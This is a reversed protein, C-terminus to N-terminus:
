RADQYSTGTDTDQMKIGTDADQLSSEIGVNELMILRLKVSGGNFMKEKTIGEIICEVYQNNTQHPLSIQIHKSAFFDKGVSYPVTIEVRRRAQSELWRYLYWLADEYRYFWKKDTLDSPPKEIQRYRQQLARAMGWIIKGDPVGASINGIGYIGPTRDATWGTGGPDNSDLVRMMGDFKESGYNWNYNVVPECYIDQLNPEIISGVNGIIKTLDISAYPGVNGLYGICEYGSKDTYTTCFTDALLSRKIEDSWGEAEDFIQRSIKLDKPAWKSVDTGGIPGLSYYDFSGDDGDTKIKASPSYTKGISVSDGSESWNELRTIHEVVDVPNEIMDTETKRFGWRDGYVRGAHPSFVADKISTSKRFMIGLSVYRATLKVTENNTYMINSTNVMLEYIAKYDDVSSVTPLKFLTKGYVFSGENATESYDLTEPVYFNKNKSDITDNYYFDPANRVVMFSDLNLPVLETFAEFNVSTKPGIFKRYSINTRRQYPSFTTYDGSVLDLALSHDILLYAEDFEFGDPPAPLRMKIAQGLYWKYGFSVGTYGLTWELRTNTLFTKDCAESFDLPSSHNTTVTAPTGFGVGIDHGVFLGPSVMACPDGYADNFRDFANFEAVSGVLSIDTNNMPVYKFADVNDMNAAFQKADVDVSNNDADDSRDYIYEPLQYFQEPQQNVPIITGEDAAQTVTKNDDWSYLEVANDIENGASDLFSRCPWVDCEFTGEIDVIEVWANNPDTATPNGILTETFYADLTVNWVNGLCTATDIRRMEGSSKSGSVVRVYKGDLFDDTIPLGTYLGTTISYLLTSASGDPYNSTIPFQSIDTLDPAIYIDAATLIKEVRNTRILKRKEAIGFSAPIMKGNIDDPANPRNGTATNDIPTLIQARRILGSNPAPITVTTENWQPDGLTGTAILERATEQGAASVTFEWLEYPLGQFTVGLTELRLTYQNTNCITLTTGDILVPAGGRRWDADQTIPAIGGNSLVDVTWDAPTATGNFVAESWRFESTGDGNNYLGLEVDDQLDLLIPIRIGWILPM